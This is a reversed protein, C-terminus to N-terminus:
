LVQLDYRYEVYLNPDEEKKKHWHHWMKHLVLAGLLAIYPTKSNM